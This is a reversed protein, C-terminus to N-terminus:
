PLHYMTSSGFAFARDFVTQKEQDLIRSVVVSKDIQAISQRSDFPPWYALDSGNPNGTKIFNVVYRSVTDSVHKDEETFNRGQGILNRFIYPVEATHFAGYKASKPGPTVHRYQYVYIPQSSQEFRKRAWVGLTAMARDSSLAKGIEAPSQGPLVYLRRAQDAVEGFAALSKDIAATDWSGYQRDFASGEDLNYGTLIPTDNFSGAEFESAIPERPLFRGDVIAGFRHRGAAKLVDEAPLARLEAINSAGSNRVLAEGYAEASAREEARPTVSSGSEAIARAFLGRASPAGILDHVAMSGGSQGGITVQEPDGGFEAINAKVWQLAAVMDMLGYNGSTGAEKSLEPHALFGFPGLRYNLSVVVIEGDAALNAGDYIPVDSSGSFLGGGHIWFYVPLRKGRADKPAWINLYLCDESMPGQIMYEPTFPDVGEKPASLQMCSKPLAKAPRVGSWSPAPVPPRWRLSGLPPEAYPIGLWSDANRGSIGNLQGQAVRVVKGADANGATALCLAGLGILLAKAIAKVRQM